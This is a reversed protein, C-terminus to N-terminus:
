SERAMRLGRERVDANTEGVIRAVEGPAADDFITTATGILGLRVATEAIAAWM